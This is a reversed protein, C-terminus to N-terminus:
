KKYIEPPAGELYVTGQSGDKCPFFVLTTTTDPGIGKFGHPKGKPIVMTQNTLVIQKKGGISGELCGDLVTILEDVTHTHLPAGADPEIKSYHLTCDVPNKVTNLGTISWVRYRPRWPLEPASKHDVITLNLSRQVHGDFILNVLLKPKM